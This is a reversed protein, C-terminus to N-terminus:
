KKLKEIRDAVLNFGSTLGSVITISQNNSFRNVATALEALVCLLLASWVFGYVYVMTLWMAYM